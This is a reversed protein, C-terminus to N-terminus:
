NKTTKRLLLHKLWAFGSKKRRQQQEQQQRSAGVSVSRTLAARATGPKNGQQQLQQQPQQPQEAGLKPMKVKGVRFQPAMPGALDPDPEGQAPPEEHHHVRAAAADTNPKMSGDDAFTWSDAWSLGSSGQRRFTIGKQLMAM